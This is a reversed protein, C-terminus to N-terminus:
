PRILVEGEARDQVAEPLEFSVSSREELRYATMADDDFVFRGAFHRRAFMWPFWLLDDAWMEDYPVADLSFWLPIAEDTETPVGEVDSARFVGVFISYGDVFQFALTGVPEVGTPTVLLEEEVERVATQLFTEGPDLKGGPGNIKGAGLGRKKRILLLKGDRIVFLLTARHTPQWGIWRAADVGVPTPSSPSPTSDNPADNVPRNEWLTGPREM